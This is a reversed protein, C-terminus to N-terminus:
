SASEETVTMGQALDKTVLEDMCTDRLQNGYMQDFYARAQEKTYDAEGSTIMTARLADYNDETYENLFVQYEEDPCTYGGARYVAHRVLDVQVMMKCYEFLSEETMGSAALITALSTDYVAAYRSYMAYYYSYYYMVADEPYDSVLANQNIKGWLASRIASDYAEQVLTSRVSATLEEVTTMAGDTYTAVFADDLTPEGVIYHVTMEFVVTQGNLTAEGYDEPFTVTVDKTQGPTMGVLGDVFGPIYGNTETVTVTQHFATGGRFATGNLRGIYDFIVTDGTEVARDTIKADPHSESLIRSLESNVAADTVAYDAPDITLSLNKYRGLQVYQTVDMSFYDVQDYTKTPDFHSLSVGETLDKGTPDGTSDPTTPDSPDRDTDPDELQGFSCGITTGCLIAAGILLATWRIKPQFRHLKM